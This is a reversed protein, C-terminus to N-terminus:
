FSKNCAKNHAFIEIIMNMVVDYLRQNEISLIVLSSTRVQSMTSRLPTKLLLKVKFAEKLWM